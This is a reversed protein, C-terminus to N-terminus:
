PRQSWSRKGAQLSQLGDTGKDPMYRQDLEVYTIRM